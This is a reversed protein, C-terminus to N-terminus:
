LLLCAIGIWVGKAARVRAIGAAARSSRSSRGAASCGCRRGSPESAPGRRPTARGHWRSHRRGRQHDAFDDHQQGAHDDRKTKLLGIGQASSSAEIRNRHSAFRPAATASRRPVCMRVVASTDRQLGRAWAQASASAIAAGQRSSTIRIPGIVSYACSSHTTCVGASDHGFVTRAAATGTPARRSSRADPQQAQRPWADGVEDAHRQRDGRQGAHQVEARAPQLADAVPVQQMKKASSSPAPTSSPTGIAKQKPRAVTPRGRQQVVERRQRDDTPRMSSPMLESIRSATGSNMRSPCEPRSSRCPWPSPRSGPRAAPGHARRAAVVHQEARHQQDRADGAGLGGVHRGHRRHQQRLHLLAAVVFALQDRQEGRGARM